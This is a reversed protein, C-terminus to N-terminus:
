LCPQTKRQLFSLNVQFLHALSFKQSQYIQAVHCFYGDLYFDLFLRFFKGFFIPLPEHSEQQVSEGVHRETWIVFFNLPPIGLQIRSLHCRDAVGLEECLDAAM